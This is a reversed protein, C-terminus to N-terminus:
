NEDGSFCGWPRNLGNGAHRRHDVRVVEVAFRARVFKAGDDGLMQMKDIHGISGGVVNPHDVRCHQLDDVFVFDADVRLM